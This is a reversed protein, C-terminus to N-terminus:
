EYIITVWLEITNSRGNNHYHVDVTNTRIDIVKKDSCFDNIQDEIYTPSKIRSKYKMYWPKSVDDDFPVSAANCIEFKLIKTKM